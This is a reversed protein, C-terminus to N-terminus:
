QEVTRYQYGFERLKETLVPRVLDRFHFEVDYERRGTHYVYFSFSESYNISEDGIIDFINDDPTPRFDFFFYHLFSMLVPEHTGNIFNVLHSNDTMNAFRIQIAAMIAINRAMEKPSFSEGGDLTRDDLQLFERMRNHVLDKNEFDIDDWHNYFDSKISPDRLYHLDPAVYDAIGVGEELEEEKYDTLNLYRAADRISEKVRGVGSHLLIISGGLGKLAVGRKRAQIKGQHTLNGDQDKQGHRM